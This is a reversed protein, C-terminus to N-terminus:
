PGPRFCLRPPSDLGPPRSSSLSSLEWRRTMRGPLPRGALAFLRAVALPSPLPM